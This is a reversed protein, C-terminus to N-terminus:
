ATHGLQHYADQLPRLAYDPMKLELRCGPGQGIWEGPQALVLFSLRKLQAIAELTPLYQAAWRTFARVFNRLMAMLLIYVTNEDPFSFPLLGWGSDQKLSSFNREAAGRANYFSIVEEGTRQTDTTVISFIKYYKEAEKLQDAFLMDGMDKKNRLERYVILRLGKDHLGLVTFPITCAELRRRGISLARSGLGRVAEAYDEESVTARITFDIKKDLLLKIPAAYFSGCDARVHQIQIKHEQCLSLIQALSDAPRFAVPTHGDKVEAVVVEEGIMATAVYYGPQGTYNLKADQKDAKALTDDYDRV